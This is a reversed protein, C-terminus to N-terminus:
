NWLAPKALITPRAFTKKRSLYSANNHHARQETANCVVRRYLVDVSVEVRITDFPMKFDDDDSYM